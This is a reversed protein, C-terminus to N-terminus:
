TPTCRPQEMVNQAFQALTRRSEDRERGTGHTAIDILADATTRGDTNAIASALATLQGQSKAGIATMTRLALLRNARTYQNM